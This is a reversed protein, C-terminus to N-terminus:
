AGYTCTYAYSILLYFCLNLKVGTPTNSVQVRHCDVKDFVVSWLPGPYRLRYLSKSRAPRNSGWHPRYKRVRESRGQPGYLRWYLPYRTKEPLLAASAHRQGGVGM